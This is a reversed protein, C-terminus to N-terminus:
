NLVKTYRRLPAAHGLNSITQSYGEGLGTPFLPTIEETLHNKGAKRERLPLPLPDVGQPFWLYVDGRGNEEKEERNTETKRSKINKIRTQIWLEKKKHHSRDSSHILDLRAM